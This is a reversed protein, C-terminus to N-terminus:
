AQGFSLEPLGPPRGGRADGVEGPLEGKRIVGADGAGEVAGAVQGGDAPGDLVDVGAVAELHVDGLAEEGREGFVREVRVGPEALAVRGRQRAGSSSRARVASSAAEGSSRASFTM